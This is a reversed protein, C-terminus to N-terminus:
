FFFSLWFAVLKKLNGGPEAVEKVAAARCSCRGLVGLVDVDVDDSLTEAILSDQDGDGPPVDDRLLENGSSPDGGGSSDGVCRGLGRWSGRM